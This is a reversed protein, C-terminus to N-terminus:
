LVKTALLAKGQNTELIEEEDTALPALATVGGNWAAEADIYDREVGSTDTLRVISVDQYSAGAIKIKHAM